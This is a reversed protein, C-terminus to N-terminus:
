YSYSYSYYTLQSRAGPIITILLVILSLAFLLYMSLYNLTSYNLLLVQYIIKIIKHKYPSIYLICKCELLQRQKNLM